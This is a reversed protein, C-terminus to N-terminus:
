AARAARQLDFQRRVSRLYIRYRRRASKARQAGARKRHATSEARDKCGSGHGQNGYISGRYFLWRGFRAPAFYELYGCVAHSLRSGRRLLEHDSESTDDCVSKATDPYEVPQYKPQEFNCVSAAGSIGDHVSHISARQLLHWLRCAGPDIEQLSDIELGRGAAPSFNNYDPNILGSPFIGTYPSAQEPTVVAVNAFGPAFDLNALRGYKETFPSFFEYRVGFIWTLNPRAKWEDQAYANFQNQRFYNSFGSFEISSSQPRDLLFDALDYGTGPVPQGNNFASTAQGTFNLTGRANPDTRTNLDARTYGGGISISHLGKLISIGEGVTQTQNRNLSPTSDNLTSFNTFSLTPPGYDIPSTSVGEIGLQAAVNNPLLSFYPVVQNYNRNFRVQANSIANASLNRTWQLTTNLGYGNNTDSYGFPQARTGSRDQYQFNLSLRDVSTINRQVRFGLNDSNSAQATEWQYNNANGPQNPLPYFQLLGLATANLMSTPIVNGAFPQHTIPDYIALPQNTASAGLSQTAQSFNGNREAATPVTETFLQPTRARTGFYTLFFQTKPDKVIKGLVLPGGVILSFRSQAYAAQPIDLGNISFPKANLASNTLTFSAM